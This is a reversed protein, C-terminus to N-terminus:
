GSLFLADSGVVDDGVDIALEDVERFVEDAGDFIMKGALDDLDVESPVVGGFGDDEVDPEGLSGEGVESSVNLFDSLWGQEGFFPSHGEHGECIPSSLFHVEVGSGGADQDIM